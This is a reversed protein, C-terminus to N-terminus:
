GTIFLPMSFAVRGGADTAVIRVFVESGSVTLSDSAADTTKILTLDERFWELKTATDSTVSITNGDVAITLQPGESDYFRGSKMGALVAATSCDTPTNVWLWGRGVDSTDHADDSFTGWVRKRQSIQSDWLEVDSPANQPENKIEIGWLGTLGDLEASTVGTRSPHNVQLVGGQAAVVDITEQRSMDPQVFSTIGLACSHGDATSVEEGPAVVMDPFSVPATQTDYDHDTFFVLDYGLEHYANAITSGSTKAPHTHVTVRCWTPYGLYQNDIVSSAAGSDPPPPPGDDGAPSGADDGAPPSADDGPPPGADDHLPIGADHGPGSDAEDGAAGDAVVGGGADAPLEAGAEGRVGPEGGGDLRDLEQGRLDITGSCATLVVVALGLLRGPPGASATSDGM